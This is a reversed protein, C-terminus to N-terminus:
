AFDFVRMLIHLPSVSIISQDTVMPEQTIGKRDAYSTKKDVSGDPKLLRQYDAHTEEMTRNIVFHEEINIPLDDM